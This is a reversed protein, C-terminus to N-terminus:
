VAHSGVLGGQSSTLPLVARREDNRGREHAPRALREVLLRRQEARHFRERLLRHADQLQEARRGLADDRRATGLLFVEQDIAVEIERTRIQDVGAPRQEAGLRRLALLHLVLVEARNGLAHERAHVLDLGLQVLDAHRHLRAVVLDRRALVFIAGTKSFAM